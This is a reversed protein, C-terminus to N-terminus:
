ETKLLNELIDGASVHPVERASSTMHRVFRRMAAVAQHTLLLTDVSDREQLEHRAPYAQVRM